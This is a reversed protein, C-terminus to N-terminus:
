NQKAFLSLQFPLGFKKTYNFRFESWTNSVKMMEISENIYTRLKVLGEETLYQFHRHPRIGIETCRNFQQLTPLVEKPFRGYILENTWVAVIPPKQYLMSEPKIWSNLRNIEKYWEDIFEKSHSRRLGTIYNKLEKVEKLTTQKGSILQIIENEKDLSKDSFRDPLRLETFELISQSLKLREEIALQKKVQEDPKLDNKTIKKNM